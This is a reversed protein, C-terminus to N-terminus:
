FTTLKPRYEFMSEFGAKTYVTLQAGPESSYGMSESWNSSPCLAPTIRHVISLEELYDGGQKLTARRRHHLHGTLVEVYQNPTACQPHKSYIVGQYDDPKMGDGHHFFLNTNGFKVVKLTKNGALVNVREGWAGKLSLGLTTALTNDHNGPECVVTVTDFNQNLMDIVSNASTLAAEFANNWTTSMDQPTGKTTTNSPGDVNMMDSGVIYVIKNAGQKKAKGALERAAELYTDQAEQLDYTEYPYPHDTFMGFHADRISLVGMKGSEEDEFNEKIGLEKAQKQMEDIRDKTLVDLRREWKARPNRPDGWVSVPVWTPDYMGYIERLLEEMTQNERTPAVSDIRELIKRASYESYTEGFKETLWDALQKRGYGLSSIEDGYIDLIEEITKM